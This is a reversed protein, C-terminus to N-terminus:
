AIRQRRRRVLAGTAVVGVAMLAYTGPEPVPAAAVDFILTAGLGTVTGYPSTADASRFAAYSVPQANGGFAIFYDGAPLLYNLLSNSNSNGSWDGSPNFQGTVSTVYQVASWNGAPNGVSWGGKANFQGFYDATAITTNRYPSAIGQSDIVGGADVTSQVKGFPPTTARPNL